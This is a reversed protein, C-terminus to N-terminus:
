NFDIVIYNDEVRIFEMPIDGLMDGEVYVSTNFNINNNDDEVINQLNQILEAITM